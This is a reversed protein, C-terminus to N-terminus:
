CRNILLSWAHCGLRLRFFTRSGGLGVETQPFVGPPGEEFEETGGALPAGASPYVTTSAQYFHHYRALYISIFCLHNLANADMCGGTNRNRQAATVGPAATAGAGYGLAREREEPNPEPPDAMRQPDDARYISGSTGDKSNYSGITAMLTPLVCCKGPKGGPGVKNCIYWQSGPQAGETKVEPASVRGTDLISDVYLDSPRRVARQFVQDLENTDALNTWFHRLRHAMSGCQAADLTVPTGIASVVIPYDRSHVYGKAHRM